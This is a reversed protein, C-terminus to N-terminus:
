WLNTTNNVDSQQPTATTTKKKRPTTKKKSKKAPSKKEATTTSSQPNEAAQRDLLKQKLKEIESLKDPQPNDFAYIDDLITQSEKFPDELRDNLTDSFRKAPKFSLRYFPPRYCEKRYKSNPYYAEAVYTKFFTGFGVLQLKDGQQVIYIILDLFFLLMARIRDRGIPSSQPYTTEYYKQVIRVIESMYYVAEVHDKDEKRLRQSM